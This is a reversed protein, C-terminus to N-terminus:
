GHSILRFAARIVLSCGMALHEAVMLYARVTTQKLCNVCVIHLHKIVQIEVEM